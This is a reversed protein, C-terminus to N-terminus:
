GVAGVGVCKGECIDVGNAAFEVGESCFCQLLLGFFRLSIILRDAEELLPGITTWARGCVCSCGREVVAFVIRYPFSRTYAWRVQRRRYRVQYRFPNQLLRDITDTVDRLFRSGLGSEKQNYWTAAALLDDDVEPRVVLTLDNM